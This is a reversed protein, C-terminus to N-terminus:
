YVTGNWKNYIRPVGSDPDNNVMSCSKSINSLVPEVLSLYLNSMYNKILNDANIIIYSVIILLVYNYHRDNDTQRYATTEMTNMENFRIISFM